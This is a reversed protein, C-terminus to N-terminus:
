WRHVPVYILIIIAGLCLFPAYPIYRTLKWHRTLLLVAVTIGGALVALILAYVVQPFGVVLGILTALKVDGAGIGGPKLLIALLFPLLGFTGGVLALLTERGPPMAHSLLAVVGAPYILVNLVLRHKLDILATLLFFSCTVALYFFKLSLGYCQWLYALLLVAGLEVAVGPWEAALFQSGRRSALSKLWQWLALSYRASKSVSVPVSSAFRLLYDAGGNILSGIALGGTICVLLM